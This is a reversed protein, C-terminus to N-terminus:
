KVDRVTEKLHLECGLSKTKWDFTAVHGKRGGIILYRGNRTYDISYSGFTPLNLDFMKDQTAIDVESRLQPQTFKYTREM